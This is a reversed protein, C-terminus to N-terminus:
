ATSPPTPATVAFHIQGSDSVEVRDGLQLYEIACPRCYFRPGPYDEDQTQMAVEAPRDCRHPNDWPEYSTAPSGTTRLREAQDLSMRNWCSLLGWWGEPTDFWEELPRPKDEQSGPRRYVAPDLSLLNTKPEPGPFPWTWAPVSPCDVDHEEDQSSGCRSCGDPEKVYTLSWPWREQDQEEEKDGTESGDRDLENELSDFLEAMRQDIDSEGVRDGHQLYEIACARCYYRPCGAKDDITLVALEAPRDCRLPSDWPEYESVFFGTTRVYDAQGLSMRNWCSMGWWGRPDGRGHEDFSPIQGPFRPLMVLWPRGSWCDAKCEEGPGAGCHLCALGVCASEQNQYAGGAVSSGAEEDTLPENEGRASENM